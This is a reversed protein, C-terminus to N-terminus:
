LHGRLFSGSRVARHRLTQFDLIEVGTKLVSENETGTSVEWSKLASYFPHLGPASSAEAHWRM